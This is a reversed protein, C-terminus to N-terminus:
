MVINKMQGAISLSKKLKLRLVPRWITWTKKTLRNSGSEISFLISARPTIKKRREVEDWTTRVTERPMRTYYRLVMEIRGGDFDIRWLWLFRKGYNIKSQHPWEALQNSRDRSGSCYSRSIRRKQAFKLKSIWQEARFNRKTLSNKCVCRRPSIVRFQRAKFVLGLIWPVTQGEHSAKWRKSM